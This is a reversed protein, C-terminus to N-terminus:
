LVTKPYNTWGAEKEAKLNEISSEIVGLNDFNMSYFRLKKDNRKRAVGYTGITLACPFRPACLSTIITKVNQCTNIVFRYLFRNTKKNYVKYLTYSRNICVYDAVDTVKIPNCYNSQIFEVAKQM